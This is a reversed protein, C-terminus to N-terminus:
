TRAPPSLREVVADIDLRGERHWLENAVYGAAAIFVLRGLRSLFVGGLAVGVAGSAAVALLPKDRVFQSLRERLVAEEPAVTETESSKMKGLRAMCATLREARPADFSAEGATSRGWPCAFRLAHAEMACAMQVPEILKPKTVIGTFSNEAM